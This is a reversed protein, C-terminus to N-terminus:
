DYCGVEMEFPVDARWRPLSEPGREGFMTLCERLSARVSPWDYNLPPVGRRVSFGLLIMWHPGDASASWFYADGNTRLESLHAHQPSLSVPARLGFPTAYAVLSEIHLNSRELLALLSMPSTYSAQLWAIRQAFTPAHALIERVFRLGDPGGDEAAIMAARLTAVRELLVDSRGLVGLDTAPVARIAEVDQPQWALEASMPVYPPNSVVVDIARGGLGCRELLGERAATDTLVTRM